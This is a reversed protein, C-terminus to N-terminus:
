KGEKRSLIIINLWSLESNTLTGKEAKEIWSKDSIIKRDYLAQLSEVLMNKQTKTLNLKEDDEGNEKLAAYLNAWPFKPGPCNPKRKPDVQFHGIVHYEDLAMDRGYLRKIETQIYKHLWVTAAFQAQTLDGDTGEHEISVTYKNPNVSPNNRIVQALANRQEWQSLGNAWAMRQIPVYQHIEGAKSVGFHASSKKNGASRFWNDMSGMSGASIHDVIVYPVHGDRSSSNTHENGMQKISYSM